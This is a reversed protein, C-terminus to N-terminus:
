HYTVNYGLSNGLNM